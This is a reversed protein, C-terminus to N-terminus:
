AAPKDQEARLLRDRMQEAEFQLSYSIMYWVGKWTDPDKLDSLSAEQFTGLIQKAIDPTMKDVGNKALQWLRGPQVPEPVVQNITGSVKDRMQEAQFRASYTMMYAMGKWTEIDTLDEATMGQFNRLIGLQVDPALKSVNDRVMVLLGAPSYPNTAAKPAAEPVMGHLEALVSNLDDILLRLEAAQSAASDTPKDADAIAVTFAELRQSRFKRLFYELQGDTLAAAAAADAHTEGRDIALLAQARQADIGGDGVAVIQELAKREADTLMGNQESM